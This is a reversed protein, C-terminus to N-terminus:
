KRKTREFIIRPSEPVFEKDEMERKINPLNLHSGDYVEKSFLGSFVGKVIMFFCKFRCFLFARVM